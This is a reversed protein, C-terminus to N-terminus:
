EQPLFRTIRGDRDPSQCHPVRDLGGTMAVGELRHLTVFAERNPVELITAAHGLIVRGV